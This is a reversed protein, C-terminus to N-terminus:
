RAPAASIPASSSVPVPVNRALLASASIGVDKITHQASGLPPVQKGAVTVAISEAAGTRIQPNNADGPVTYSEGKKMEKEVLVKDNADYIRVWVTNTATLVVTGGVAAAPANPVGALSPGPTASNAAAVTTNMSGALNTTALAANDIAGAIPAQENVTLIPESAASHRWLMYGGILLIALVAASWALWKPALRLPDVPEYSQSNAAELPSLSGLETRLDRGLETDDLGVARAYSKVFGVSYTASPMSKYNSAEIATLHRLPIRTRSAVDALDLGMSERASRLRQGVSDKFLTPDSFEEAEDM